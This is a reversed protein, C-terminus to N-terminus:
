RKTDAPLDRYEIRDTLGTAHAVRYITEAFRWLAGASARWPGGVDSRTPTM